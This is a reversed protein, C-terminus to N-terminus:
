ISLFLSILDDNLLDFVSTTAKKVEVSRELVEQPEQLQFDNALFYIAAGMLKILPIIVTAIKVVRWAIEPWSQNSGEREVLVLSNDEESPLLTFGRQGFDFINICERLCAFNEGEHVDDADISSYIPRFFDTFGSFPNVQHIM